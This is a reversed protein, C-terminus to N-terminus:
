RKLRSVVLTATYGNKNIRINEKPEPTLSLLNIAYGGFTAGKPGLHTNLEFSEKAGQKSVEIMIKANGAHICNTGEPCRSDEVLSVFKVTIKSCSFKKQKHIQVKQQQKTQAEATHLAGVAFVFLLSLFLTFKM